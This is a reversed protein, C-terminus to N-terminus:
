ERSPLRHSNIKWCAVSVCHTTHDASDFWSSCEHRNRAFVHARIDRRVSLDHHRGLPHFRGHKGIGCGASDGLSVKRSCGFPM